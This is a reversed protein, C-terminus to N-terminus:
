GAADAGEGHGPAPRIREPAHQREDAGVGPQARPVRIRREDALGLRPRDADEELVAATVQVDVAAVPPDPVLRHRAGELVRAVVDAEDLAVPAVVVDLAGRDQGVRQAPQPAIPFVRDRRGLSPGAGLPVVDGLDQIGRLLPAEDGLAVGLGRFHTTM